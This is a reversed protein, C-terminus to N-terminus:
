FYLVADKQVFFRVIFVRDYLSSFLFSETIPNDGTFSMERRSIIKIAFLILVVDLANEIFFKVSLFPDRSFRVQISGLKFWFGPQKSFLIILREFRFAVHHIFKQTSGFFYIVVCYNM